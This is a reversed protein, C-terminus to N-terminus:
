EGARVVTVSCPADATIQLARKGSAAGNGMLGGSMTEMLGGGPGAGVVIHDVANSRAFAIVGASVSRAEVLHCTLMGEPLELPAVWARLQAMRGVHINRGDADVNAEPMLTTLKVDLCALRAGPMNALASVASELLASRLEDLGPRLDVAVLIIPPSPQPKTATEQIEKMTHRATLRRSFKNGFTQKDKREARETLEVLDLHRLDFLMDEMAAYRKEPM